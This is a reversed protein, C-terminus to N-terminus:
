AKCLGVVVAELSKPMGFMGHGVALLKSCGKCCDWTWGVATFGIEEKKAKAPKWDVKVALLGELPEEEVKLVEDGEAKAVLGELPEKVVKLVAGKAKRAVLGELQEQSPVSTTM